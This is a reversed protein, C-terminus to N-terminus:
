GWEFTRGRSISNCAGRNSIDKLQIHAELEEINLHVGKGQEALIVRYATCIELDTPYHREVGYLAIEYDLFHCYVESAFRARKEDIMRVETENSTKKKRGKKKTLAEMEKFALARGIRAWDVTHKIELSSALTKDEFLNELNFDFFSYGEFPTLPHDELAELSELGYLMQRRPGIDLATKFYLRLADALYEERYDPTSSTEFGYEIGYYNQEGKPPGLEDIEDKIIRIKDLLIKKKADKEEEHKEQLALGEQYNSTHKIMRVIDLNVNKSQLFSNNYTAIAQKLGALITHDM